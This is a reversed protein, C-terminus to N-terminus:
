LTNLAADQLSLMTLSYSASPTMTSTLLRVQTPSLVEVSQVVLTPTFLYQIPSGVNVPNMAENFTVLISTLTEARVEVAHPAVGVGTFGIVRRTLAIGDDTRLVAGVPLTIEYAAGTTMETTAFVIRDNTVTVGTVTGAVGTVGTLVSLPLGILQGPNPVSIPVTWVMTVSRDAVTVSPFEIFPAPTFAATLDIVTPQPGEVVGLNTYLAGVPQEVVATGVAVYGDFTVRIRDALGQARMVQAAYAGIGGVRSFHFDRDRLEFSSADAWKNITAPVGIQSEAMLSPVVDAM